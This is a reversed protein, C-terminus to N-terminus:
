GGCNKSTITTGTSPVGAEVFSLPLSPCNGTGCNTQRMFHLHSGTSYGTTGSLGLQAGRAVQAGIAVTIQNLHKYITTSGDSHLLVVYNSYPACSSGGGNYCTHGPKTKDYIHIVKGPASAKVSTNLGVGLDFAYRTTGKHSVTGNNGQTVKVKQGCALPVYFGDLPPPDAPKESLCELFKSYGYGVTGGSKIQFWVPTGDVVQGDIKGLVEVVTNDPLTAVPAGSTSPGPRVNLVQGPTNTRAYPCAPDAVPGETPPSTSGAAGSAGALGDQGGAGGMTEPDDGDTGEGEAGGSGAAAETGGDGESAADTGAAGDEGEGFPSGSAGGPLDDGGPLSGAAGASAGGGRGAGGASTRGAGGGRGVSTVETSEDDAEGCAVPGLLTLLCGVVGILRSHKM